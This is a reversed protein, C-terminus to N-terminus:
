IGTSSCRERFWRNVKAWLPRLLAGAGTAALRRLLLIRVYEVSRIIENAWGVWRPMSARHSRQILKLEAFVKVIDNSGGTMDYDVLVDKTFRGRLGAVYCRVHYDYDGAVQYATSFPGIRDLSSRRYVVAQHYMWSRGLINGLLTRNPAIPYLARGRRRLYARGCVFDLSADQDLTELIASLAARDHLADGGNLFWVYTGTAAALARNFADSVGRPPHEVHILPWGPPLRELVTRTFSAAGDVVVHEWNSAPWASFLPELSRLTTELGVADNYTVTAVCLKPHSVRADV